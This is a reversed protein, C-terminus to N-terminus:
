GRLKDIYNLIHDSKGSQPRSNWNEASSATPTVPGVADKGPETAGSGQEEARPRGVLLRRMGPRLGSSLPRVGPSGSESTADAEWQGAGTSKLTYSFTKGALPAGGQSQPARIDRGDRRASLGPESPKAKAAAVDGAPGLNRPALEHAREMLAPWEALMPAM